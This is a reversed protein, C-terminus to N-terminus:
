KLQDKRTRDNRRMGHPASAVKLTAVIALRNIGVDMRSHGIHSGTM